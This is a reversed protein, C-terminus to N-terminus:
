GDIDGDGSDGTPGSDFTGRSRRLGGHKLEDLLERPTMMLDRRHQFRQYLYDLLAVALLAAGVRLGVSMVLGGCRRVIQRAGLGGAGVISVMAGRITYFGILAILVLKAVSMAGHVAFRASFLRRLGATPSIRALDAELPRRPAGPGLQILNCLLAICALTLCLGAAAAVAPAASRFLLDGAAQPSEAGAPGALMTSTMKALSSLMGPAFLALAGFGGVTLAAATLDSSRAVIGRRRAEALRQPTPEITREGTEDSKEM